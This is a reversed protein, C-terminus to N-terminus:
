EGQKEIHNELEYLYEIAKFWDECDVSINGDSDKYTLRKELEPLKNIEIKESLCFLFLLYFLFFISILLVIKKYENLYSVSITIVLIAGALFSLSYKEKEIWDLTKNLLNNLHKLVFDFKKKM